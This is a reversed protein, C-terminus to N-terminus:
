ILTLITEPPAEGPLLHNEEQWRQVAEAEASEPGPADHVEYIWVGDSPEHPVPSELPKYSLAVRYSATMGGM